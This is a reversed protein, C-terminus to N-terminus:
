PQYRSHCFCSTSYPHLERDPIALPNPKISRDPQSSFPLLDSHIISDAQRNQHRTSNRLGQEKKQIWQNRTIDMTQLNLPPVFTRIYLVSLRYRRKRNGPCCALKCLWWKSLSADIHTLKHSLFVSLSLSLTRWQGRSASTALLCCFLSSLIPTVSNVRKPGVLGIIQPRSLLLGPWM